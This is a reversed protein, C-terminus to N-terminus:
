WAATLALAVMAAAAIARQPSRVGERLRSRLPALAALVDPGRGAVWGALLLAPVITGPIFWTLDILSHATFAIVVAVM